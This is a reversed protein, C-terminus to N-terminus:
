YLRMGLMNGVLIMSIVLVFVAFLLFTLSDFKIGYTEPKYLSKKARSSTISVKRKAM